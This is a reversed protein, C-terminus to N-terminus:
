VKWLLAEMTKIRQRCGEDYESFNRPYTDKGDNVIAAKQSNTTRLRAIECAIAQRITDPRAIM